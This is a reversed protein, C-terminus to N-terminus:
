PMMKLGLAVRQKEAPLESMMMLFKGVHLHGNGSKDIGLLTLAQYLTFDAYTLSSGVCFGTPQLCKDFYPLWKPLRKDTLMDSANLCMRMAHLDDVATTGALGVAKGIAQMVVATQAVCEGSPLQLMPPAFGPFADAPFEQPTKVEYATKTHELLLWPALGRGWFAKLAGHYYLVFGGGGGGGGGGAKIWADYEVRSAFGSEIFSPPM